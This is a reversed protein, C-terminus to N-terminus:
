SSGLSAELGYPVTSRLLQPAPLPSPLTQSPPLLVLLRHAQSTNAHSAGSHRGSGNTQVTQSPLWPRCPWGWRPRAPIFGGLGISLPGCLSRLTVKALAAIACANELKEM